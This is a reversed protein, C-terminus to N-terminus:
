FPYSDSSSEAPPEPAEESPERHKADRLGKTLKALTSQDVPKKPKGLWAVKLRAQGNYVEEQIDVEVEHGAVMEPRKQLDDLNQMDPDFGIAKLRPRAMELAKATTLWIEANINNGDELELFVRVYAKGNPTTDLTASIVKAKQRGIQIPSM